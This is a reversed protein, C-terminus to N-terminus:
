KIDIVKEWEGNSHNYRKVTRAPNGAVITYSDVNKVVVSGGAVISHTGITVGKTIISNAGVWVNDEIVILGTDVGQEDIRKKVDKYKHDLGSIAINQALIVHSGIEIPGIIVNGLGVRSYAGIKVDGVMNNVISFNEIVSYSGITFNNFPVIDKRVSRYIVANKGRKIYFPMLLRLWLRPRTKVPNILINLIIGKYRPNNELWKYIAKKM